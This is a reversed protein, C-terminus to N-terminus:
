FNEAATKKLDLWPLCKSNFNSTIYRAEETTLLNLNLSVDNGPNM